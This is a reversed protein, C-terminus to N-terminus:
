LRAVYSWSASTLPLLWELRFYFSLTTARDQNVMNWRGFVDHSGKTSRWIKRLTIVSIVLFCVLGFNSPSRVYPIVGRFAINTLPMINKVRQVFTPTKPSPTSTWSIGLDVAFGLGIKVRSLIQSRSHPHFLCFVKWLTLIQFHLDRLQM